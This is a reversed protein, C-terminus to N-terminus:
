IPRANVRGNKNSTFELAHFCFRLGIAEVDGQQSVPKRVGDPPGFNRKYNASVSAGSEIRIMRECAPM